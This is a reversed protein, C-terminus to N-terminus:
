GVAWYTECIAECTDQLFIHSLASSWPIFPVSYQWATKHSSLRGVKPSLIHSRQLSVEDNARCRQSLWAERTNFSDRGEITDLTEESSMFKMRVMPTTYINQRCKIKQANPRCCFSRISGHYVNYPSSHNLLTVWQWQWEPSSYQSYLYPQLGQDM